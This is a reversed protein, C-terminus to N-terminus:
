QILVKGAALRKGAMDLLNILYIGKGFTNFDVEMKDYPKGITYTKNLVLAGKADYILLTRPLVNGGISYYSVQFHGRNPNPYVFLKASFSDTISLIASTNSCGNVDTIFAKYSGLDEVSITISKSVASPLLVGNKYWAFSVAAPLANVSLTTSLGPLLKKFPAASLTVVPTPNVTLLAINTTDFNTCPSASTVQCRYKYGNWSFPANKVSLNKTATGTYNANDSLPNYTGDGTNVLWKYLPNTGSADTAFNATGFECIAAATPQNTIVMPNVVTLTITAAASTCSGNVSIATYTTTVAPKAYVQFLASTGNYTVTAAADTFLSGAPSWVAPFAPTTLTYNITISWGTLVGEDGLGGDAMALTWVGAPVSYLAAFNAAASVFGAPNQVTAGTIASNIADPKFTGTFPAVGSSIAATGNSSIITNVFDEGADGTGTLYKDLALIAGNPAKLNFLMDGIYTHTMNLKVDIGVVTAGAPLAPVTLTSSAGNATNDPVSVSIAGSSVLVNNTSIAAPNITLAQLSNLCVPTIPNVSPAGPVTSVTVKVQACTAPTACGGQARVYYTTTVTPSVTISTGTGAPTGGCSGTFWFWNAAGGLTGGTVRLVATGSTCYSTDASTTALTPQQCNSINIFYDETEGYSFATCADTGAIGASGYRVRVRMRTIGLVANAPITISKILTSDNTADTYGIFTYESSEFIGNKNFDIWVGANDDTGPGVTVGINAITGPPFVPAAVTTTYDSYGAGTCGSSSNNLSGFAVKKIEDDAGCNSAPPTCYSPNSTTTFSLTTSGTASGAANKPVIKYYYVTNINLTPSFQYSTGVVTAVLGPTSTTGLYVDYASAEATATWSLFGNTLVNVANNAPSFGTANGPPVTPLTTNLVIRGTFFRPTFTPSPFGGTYGINAASIQANGVKLNIGAASFSNPTPTVAATGSYAIGKDSEIAFRYQTGAPIVFSLGTLTTYYGATTITLASGTAVLTWAPSQITPAGSLSTASYWLKPVAGNSTPIWYCDVQRLTADIANTNEIVFCAASNNTVSNGGTYNTGTETSITTQSLLKNSVVSFFFFFFLIAAKYDKKYFYNM